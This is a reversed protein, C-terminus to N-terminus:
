QNLSYHTDFIEVIYALETDPIEIFYDNEIEKFSCKITKFLEPNRQKFKQVNNYPLPKKLMIREVMSSCHFMFKIKLDDNEPIKQHNTIRTLTKQLSSIVKKPDIFLLFQGLSDIMKQNSFSFSKPTIKEMLFDSKLSNFLNDLTASPLQSKRTAELLMPTSIPSINRVQHNTKEQILNAFLSLSGMDSLILVGHGNDIREITNLVKKFIKDTGEDLPLDIGIAHTSNLFSNVVECMSSAINDGHSLALIGISKQNKEKSMHLLMTLFTLEGEPIYFDILQNLRKRIDLAVTYEQPYQQKVSTTQPYKPINKSYIRNKLTNIHLMLGLITNKHLNLQLETLTTKVATYVSYNIIKTITQSRDLEEFADIQQYFGKAAVYAENLGTNHLYEKKSSVKFSPELTANPTTLYNPYSEPNNSKTSDIEITENLRSVLDQILVEQYKKEKFYSKITKEPLDNFTISIKNELVGNEKMYAKACTLKIDVKLQGLNSPTKYTLLAEIVSKDVLLSSGIQKAEAKFFLYIYDLKETPFRDDLDPLNVSVPIRRTFTRLLASSIDETTAMVFLIHGITNPTVQGLRRYTQNDIVQFLMEQAQPPLRHVEDLFLIGHEAQKIIGEKTSNAGTFAGKEYGFLLSMLLQPNDVYDACNFTIMPANKKLIGKSIAFNYLYSVMTTKGVGTSGSLLINMGYPPYLIAAKLQEVVSKLSGQYGIMKEFPDEIANDKKKVTLLKSLEEQTFIFNNKQPLNIKSALANVSLYLVPKGSIKIVQKERFLKNLEKSVNSRTIDLKKSIYSTSIGSNQEVSENLSGKTEEELFMKIRDKRSFQRM